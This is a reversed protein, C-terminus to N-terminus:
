QDVRWGKGSIENVWRQSGQRWATGCRRRQGRSQGRRGRRGREHEAEKADRRDQRRPHLPGNEESVQM